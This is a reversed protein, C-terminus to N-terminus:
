LLLFVIRTFISYLFLNNFLHNIVYNDTIKGGERAM